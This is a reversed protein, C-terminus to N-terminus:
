WWSRIPVSGARELLAAGALAQGPLLLRASRAVAGRPHTRRGRARTSAGRRRLCQVLQRAGDQASGSSCARRRPSQALGGGHEAGHGRSRRSAGGRSPLGDVGLGAGRGSARPEGPQGGGGVNTWREIRGPARTPEPRKRASRAGAGPLAWSGAPSGRAGSRHLREGRHSARGHEGKSTRSSGFFRTWSATTRLLDEYPIPPEGGDRVAGYFARMLHELGGFFHYDCHAFDRLGRWGEAAFRIATEFPQVLRGFASPLRPGTSLTLSRSTYDVLACNRSGYIRCWHGAPRIHASFTAYASVGDSQLRLRLEDFTRDRCDHYRRSRLRGGRADIELGNTEYPLLEVVKNLLHDVNNHLLGGPLQHVWHDPDSMIAQGFPGALDYGYFSEVHLVKGLAGGALLRRMRQAPPDFLYTYGVTLKKGCSEAAAILARADEHTPALPKEVYVHAGAAFARAALALHSAPPTAIHVVDPRARELMEDYSAYHASIGYRRALQEAMLPEVDCAAVLSAVEPMRRLQEAHADAFKGCGVIASKM